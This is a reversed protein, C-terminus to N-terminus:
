KPVASPATGSRQKLSLLDRNVTIRFKDFAEVAESHARVKKSLSQLEKKSASQKTASVLSNLEKGQDSLRERLSQILLEQESSRQQLSSVPKVLKQETSALAVQIKKIDGELQKKADALNKRSANRTGWLKDVESLVLKLEKDIGKVNATLATLSQTSEDDSLLLKNELEDIRSQQQTIIQQSNYLQWFTYGAAAAASIAILFTFWLMGSSQKQVIVQQPRPASQRPPPKLKTGSPASRKEVVKEDPSSLTPEKRDHVM